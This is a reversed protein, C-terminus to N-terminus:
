SSVFGSWSDIQIFSLVLSARSGAPLRNDILLFPSRSVPDPSHGIHILPSALQKSLLNGFPSLASRAYAKYVRMVLYIGRRGVRYRLGGDRGRTRRRREAEEEEGGCGLVLGKAACFIRYSVVFYIRSIISVSVGPHAHSTQASSYPTWRRGCEM